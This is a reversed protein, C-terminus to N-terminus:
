RMVTKGAGPIAYRGFLGYEVKDPDGDRWKQFDELELFWTGTDKLRKARVDYHRM